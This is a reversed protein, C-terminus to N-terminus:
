LNLTYYTYLCRFAVDSIIGADHLATLYGRIEARVLKKQSEYEVKDGIDKLSDLHRKQAPHLQNIYYTTKATM